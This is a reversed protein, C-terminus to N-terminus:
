PKISLDLASPRQLGFQEQRQGVASPTFGGTQALINLGSALGQLPLLSAQGSLQSASQQYPAAAQAGGVTLQGGQTAAGVALNGRQTAGSRLVDSIDRRTGALVDGRQLAAQRQQEAGLQGFGLRAAAGATQVGLRREQELNRQAAINSALRERLGSILQSAQFGQGAVGSLRQFQREEEEAGLRGFEEFGLGSQSRGTARQRRLLAKEAERQSASIPGEQGEKIGFETRFEQEEQPTLLGSRFEIQRLARQGAQSFPSLEDIAGPEFGADQGIKGLIGGRLEERTFIGSSGIDELIRQEESKSEERLRAIANQFGETSETLATLQAQEAQQLLGPRGEWELLRQVNARQDLLDGIPIGARDSLSRQLAILEATLEPKARPDDIKSQRVERQLEDLRELEEQTINGSSLQNNINNLESRLSEARQPTIGVSQLEALESASIAEDTRKELALRALEAAELQDKAIRRSTKAQKRAADSAALGSIAAGGVAIAAMTSGAAM